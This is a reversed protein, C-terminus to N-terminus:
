SVLVVGLVALGGVLALLPLARSGRVRDLPTSTPVTPSSTPRPRRTEVDFGQATLRDMIGQIDAATPQAKALFEERTSATVGTERFGAGLVPDDAQEQTLPGQFTHGGPVGDSLTPPNFGESM